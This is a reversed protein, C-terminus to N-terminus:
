ETMARLQFSVLRDAMDKVSFARTDLLWTLEVGYLFSLLGWAAAEVDTDPRIEGAAMGQRILDALSKKLNQMFSIIRNMQPQLEETLETKFLIIEMIARYEENKEIFIFMETMLRRIRSLPSEDAELISAARKEYQHFINLLHNFLDIKNKFHWYIAGRTVGAAKAVEELRAAAFGKASFVNLAAKLIEKRTKEAEQKTKRM